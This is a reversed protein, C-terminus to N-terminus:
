SAKTVQNYWPHVNQWASITKASPPTASQWSSLSLTANQCWSPCRAALFCQKPSLNWKRGKFLWARVLCHQFTAMSTATYTTAEAGTLVAAQGTHYPRTQDPRTHDPKTQDPITQHNHIYTIHKKDCSWTVSLRFQSTRIVLSRSVFMTDTSRILSYVSVSLSTGAKQKICCKRRRIGFMSKM